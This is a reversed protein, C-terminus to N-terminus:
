GSATFNVMPPPTVTSPAEGKHSSNYKEGRMYSRHWGASIGQWKCLNDSGFNTCVSQYLLTPFHGSTHLFSGLLELFMHFFDIWLVQKRPKLVAASATIFNLEETSAHRMHRAPAICLGIWIKYFEYLLSRPKWFTRIIISCFPFHSPGTMSWENSPVLM